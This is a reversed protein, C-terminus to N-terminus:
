CWLDGVRLSCNFKCLVKSKTLCLETTTIAVAGLSWLKDGTGFRGRGSNVM